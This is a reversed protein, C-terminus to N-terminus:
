ALYRGNPSCPLTVTFGSGVGVKSEVTIQGGHMEVIEKSITLGLGTGKGKNETVRYFPEFLRPLAEPPIGVGTDQVRIAAAGHEDIRLRVEVQGGDPTYNIANIVLNDIVQRFREPDISARIPTDPLQRILQISKQEARLQCDNLVVAIVDQLVLDKRELVIMGQEFRSIDLLNEILKIMHNVAGEAAELHEQWKEPQRRALYQRMKVNTIPTRLEHAANAIFRDKQAQLAKEQGIDRLLVAAGVPLGDLGPIVTVTLGIEREQGHKTHVQVAGRWVMYQRLTGEIDVSLSSFIQPNKLLSQFVVSPQNLVEDASYGTLVTFARNVYLTKETPLEIYMVGEIMSDLITQLQARQAELEATRERVHQELTDAYDRIQKHLQANAIAIAAQDAFVQLREVHAPTFFNPRASNLSLIGIMQGGVRLPINLASRIWISPPPNVWNPDTRTDRVLYPTATFTLTQPNAPDLTYRLDRIYADAAEGFNRWYAFRVEGNEFLAISAADHAVVRGVNDLIRSMVGDLDLTSTLAAISDRLAEALVRQERETAESQKLADEAQKRETIDTSIGCNAYYRGQADFLPFLTTAYTREVDGIVVRDEAEFPAQMSKLRNLRQAFVDITDTPLFDSFTKGIIQDPTTGYLAGVAENVLLYRGQQDFISILSPSFRFFGQLQDAAKRLATEAQRIRDANREQRMRYLRYGAAAIAVLTVFGTLIISQQVRQAAGTRDLIARAPTSLGIVWVEQGVQVPTWAAIEEGADPTWIYHATGEQAKTVGDVLRDYQSAGTSSWRAFLQALSLGRDAVPLDAHLDRVARDPTYVWLSTHAPLQVPTIFRDVVDQPAPSILTYAAISRATARVLELQLQQYVAM